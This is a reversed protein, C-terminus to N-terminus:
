KRVQLQYILKKGSLETAPAAVISWVDGHIDQFQFSEKIHLTGAITVTCDGNNVKGEVQAWVPVSEIVYRIPTITPQSITAGTIGDVTGSQSEIIFGDTGFDALLNDVIVGLDDSLM